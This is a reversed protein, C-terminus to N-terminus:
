ISLAESAAKVSHSNEQVFKRPSMRTWRRFARSFASPDSFGTLYAAENVTVKGGKMYELALRRRLNDLVEQFTTGEDKFRRYLTQRSMAMQSAIERVSVEGGHLVTMLLSEVKARFTAKARLAQLMDDAKSTLIGFMYSPTVAVPYALWSEDLKMANRSSEFAVPAEFIREYETAYTPAQHTCELAGVKLENTFHRPGCALRAFTVETLEPFDGSERRNDVLWIEGNERIIEFRQAAGIDVEMVLAGYRNLQKLADLMTPSSRTILGVLSLESLDIQEAYHLAIAPNGTLDKATQMLSRYDSMAVRNDDDMLLSVPIGSRSHLTVRDAGQGVAFEILGKVVGASVSADAM